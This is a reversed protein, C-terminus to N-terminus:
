KNKEIDQNSVQLSKKAVLYTVKQYKLIEELEDKWLREQRKERERAEQFFLEREKIYLSVIMDIFLFAAILVVIGGGIVAVSDHRYELLCFVEFM